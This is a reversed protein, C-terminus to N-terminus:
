CLVVFFSTRCSIALLMGSTPPFIHTHTNIYICVYIFHWGGFHSTLDVINCVRGQRIKGVNPPHAPALTLGQNCGHSLNTPCVFAHWAPASWLIVISSVHTVNRCDVFVQMICWLILNCHDTCKFHTLIELCVSKLSHIM